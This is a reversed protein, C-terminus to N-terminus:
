VKERELKMGRNATNKNVLKVVQSKLADLSCLKEYSLIIGMYIDNMHNTKIVKWAVEREFSIM